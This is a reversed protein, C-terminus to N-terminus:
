NLLSCMELNFTFFYMCHFRSKVSRLLGGLFFLILSPILDPFHSHYLVYLFNNEYRLKPINYRLIYMYVQFSESSPTHQVSSNPKNQVISLTWFLGLLETYFICTQVSYFYLHLNLYPEKNIKHHKILKM